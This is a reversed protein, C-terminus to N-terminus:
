GCRGARFAGEAAMCVELPELLGTNLSTSILAHFLTPAGARMADQWDGFQPLRNLVFDGLRAQRRRRDRAPQVRRLHRFPRRLPRAGPRDCGPHHRGAPLAATRAGRARRAAAQPERRRLELAGGGAARGDMLVAYRRRMERYFFEMRYSRKGQAWSRFEGRSCLFRTDNRIEVELGTAEHWSQMDRDLRWEGCETAVIRDPRLRQPPGRWRAASPNRTRRTTSRWTNSTSAGPHRLARAFHRMASLVLVIKKQHHRVYTCESTVEAMLVTDRAPDM